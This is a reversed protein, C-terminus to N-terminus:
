QKLNAGLIGVIESSESSLEESCQHCIEGSIVGSSCTESSSFILESCKKVRCLLRMDGSLIM